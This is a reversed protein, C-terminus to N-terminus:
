KTKWLWWAIGSLGLAVIIRTWWAMESCLYVGIVPNDTLCGVHIRVLCYLWYGAFLLCVPVMRGAIDVEWCLWVVYLRAAIAMSALFSIVYMIEGAMEVMGPSLWPTIM